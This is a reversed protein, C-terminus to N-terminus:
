LLIENLTKAVKVISDKIFFHNGSFPFFEVKGETFNWWDKYLSANGIYDETGYFIVINSKMKTCTPRYTKYLQFDAKIIPLFVNRIEANEFFDEAVGGLELLYQRLSKNDRIQQKLVFQDPPLCGSIIIPKKFVCDMSELFLTTNYTLMGGMSHGFIAYEDNLDYLNINKAIDAVAEDLSSYFSENLRNGRGALEIPILDIATDLHKKWHRYITASGGAFPICFLKMILSMEKSILDM